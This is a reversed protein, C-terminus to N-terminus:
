HRYMIFSSSHSKDAATYRDVKEYSRRVIAIKVPQTVRITISMRIHKMRLNTHWLYAFLPCM